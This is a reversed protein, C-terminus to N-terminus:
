DGVVLNALVERVLGESTSPNLTPFNKRQYTAHADETEEIYACCRHRHMCAVLTREPQGRLHLSLQPKGDSIM